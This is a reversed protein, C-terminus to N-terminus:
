FHSGKIEKLFWKKIDPWKVPKLMSPMEDKDADAFYVLSKRLLLRREEFNDYKKQYFSFLDVLSFKHAMFYVDIFDRRTGRGILTDLKMAALDQISAVSIRRYLGPAELQPYFYGFISIKVQDIYGILTQWDRKLLGFGLDRSLKEEWQKEVFEVPTFFDLDASRRHGLYLAVATGGGLYTDPPLDEPKIKNLLAATEPLLAQEFML